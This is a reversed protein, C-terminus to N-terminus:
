LCCSSLFFMSCFVYRLFMALPRAYAPQATLAQRVKTQLGNATATATGKQQATAAAQDSEVCWLAILQDPQAGEEVQRAMGGGLGAIIARVHLVEAAKNCCKFNMRLMWILIRPDSVQLRRMITLSAPRSGSLGTFLLMNQMLTEERLTGTDETAQALLVTVYEPYANSVDVLIAKVQSQLGWRPNGLALLTNYVSVCLYGPNAPAVAHEISQNQKVTVLNTFDVCELADGSCELACKLLFLQREKNEWLGDVLADVPVKAGSVARFMQTFVNFSNSSSCNFKYNDINRVVKVWDFRRSNKTIKSLYFSVVGLNWKETTESCIGVM